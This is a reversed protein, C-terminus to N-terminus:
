NVKIVNMGNWDSGLNNRIRNLINNSLHTGGYIDFGAADSLAKAEGTLNKRLNLLTDFDSRVNLYKPHNVVQAEQLLVDPSLHAGRVETANITHLVPKGFDQTLITKPYTHIVAGEQIPLFTDPLGKIGELGPYKNLPILRKKAISNGLTNIATNIAENPTIAEGFLQSYQGALVDGFNKRQEPTMSDIVQQARERVARNRPTNAAITHRLEQGEHFNLLATLPNDPTQKLAIEFQNTKPNFSTAAGNGYYAMNKQGISAGPASVDVVRAVPKTKYIPKNLENLVPKSSQQIEANNGLLKGGRKAKLRAKLEQLRVKLAEGSENSNQIIQKAKIADEDLVPRGFDDVVTNIRNIIRDTANNLHQIAQNKSYIIGYRPDTIKNKAAASLRPYEKLWRPAAEKVLKGIKTIM